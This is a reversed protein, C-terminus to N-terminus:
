GKAGMLPLERVEKKQDNDSAEKREKESATIREPRRWFVSKGLVM